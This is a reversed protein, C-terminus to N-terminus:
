SVNKGGGGFREGHLDLWELFLEVWQADDADSMERNLKELKADIEKDSM